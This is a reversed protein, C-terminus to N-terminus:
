SQIRSAWSFATRSPITTSSSASNISFSPFSTLTKEPETRLRLTAVRSSASITSARSAASGKHTYPGAEVQMPQHDTAPQHKAPDLEGPVHPQGAVAIGVDNAVGQDVREAARGADTVNARQKGVVVRLVLVGAAQVQQALHGIM